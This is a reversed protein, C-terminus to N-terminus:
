PSEGDGPISVPAPGEETTSPGSEEEGDGEALHTDRDKGSTVGVGATSVETAPLGSESEPVPEDPTAMVEDFEPIVIGRAAMIRYIRNSRYTVYKSKGHPNYRLPNPLVTALRAAEEPGLSSAGKRYYHRAAAEIGFIGDGWEAYNLYLEMIRRKSLAKEMRWALIAERIKRLPNRSPTLYLNKALQQTITSGGAKFTKAKLDKKLAQQMAEYDFGGHQWFKDDEAIIIAKVLYPSIRKLPVWRHSISKGRGERAWQRERFEMFASKEPHNDKLSPIDPYIFFVAISATVMILAALAALLLKKM